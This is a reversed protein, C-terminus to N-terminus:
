DNNGGEMLMLVTLKAPFCALTGSLCTSLIPLIGRSGLMRRERVCYHSFSNCQIVFTFCCCLGGSAAGM